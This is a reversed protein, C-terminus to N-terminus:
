DWSFGDEDRSRKKVPKQPLGVIKEIFNAYIWEAMDERDEEDDMSLGKCDKELKETISNVYDTL